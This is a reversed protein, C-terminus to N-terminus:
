AVGTATLEIAGAVARKHADVRTVDLQECDDTSIGDELLIVKDNKQVPLPFRAKRLDEAMVIIQRDGQTIAGVQSAGYGTRQVVSSDPVYDQVIALVNASFSVVSGPTGTAQGTLRQLTVKIGRKEIGRRMAAEASPNIM